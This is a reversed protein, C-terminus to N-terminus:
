DSLTSAIQYCGLRQKSPGSAKRYQRILCRAQCSKLVPIGEDANEGRQCPAEIYSEQSLHHVTLAVGNM